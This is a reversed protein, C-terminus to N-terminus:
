YPRMVSVGPIMQFHRVNKTYLTLGQELATGAILADPIQLGHSLFFSEMLQRAAECAARSVPLVNVPQLFQRVQELEAKNRCGAILEM